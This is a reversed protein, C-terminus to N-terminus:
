LSPCSAAGEGAPHPAAATCAFERVAPPILKVVCGLQRAVANKERPSVEGRHNSQSQDRTRNFGRGVKGTLPSDM